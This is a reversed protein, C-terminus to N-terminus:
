GDKKLLNDLAEGISPYLFQFGERRVKKSAVTTSKLVEISMEGLVLKLMFSPIYIQVFYHGKLRKALDLTLTKNDVPHPTVANYIGNWEPQELAHLYLRCLDGIHIWSIVQKGSGLVAAVGLRVPKKFEALAGRKPSLVIGTRLIVLRKGSETVPAISNEWLRCTEGLFDDDAPAEESFPQPNPISPDPGYWGIASASVIAKVKNPVEKLAKVLVASSRTRSDMIEQKRKASWRKDAVGAGALHVIFDAQSIAQPDITGQDPDWTRWEIGTGTSAKRKKDGGNEDGVDGRSLVIVKYGKETLMQSLASGILGTGGTILVTSKNPQQDM